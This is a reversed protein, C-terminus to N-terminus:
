PIYSTFVGRLIGGMGGVSMVLRAKTHSAVYEHHRQIEARIVSIIVQRHVHGLFYRQHAM